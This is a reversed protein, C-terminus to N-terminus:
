KDGRDSFVWIETHNCVLSVCVLTWLRVNGSATLLLGWLFTHYSEPRWALWYFHHFCLMFHWINDCLLMRDTRVLLSFIVFIVCSQRHIAPFLLLRRTALSEKHSGNFNLLFRSAEWIFSSSISWFIQSACANMVWLYFTKGWYPQLIKCSRPSAKTGVLRTRLSVSGVVLQCSLATILM